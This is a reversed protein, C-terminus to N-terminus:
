DKIKKIGLWVLAVLAAGLIIVRLYDDMDSWYRMSGIILSLVGGLTLGLSVAPTAMTFFGAVLAIVGLITLAVFVNRNYLERAEEFEQACIFQTNCWGVPTGGTPPVPKTEGVFRSPDETWQGGQAVCEEQNQPTKVVQEQKCFEDWEPAEYVLFISYNFFLNLVIVIGAILAWKLVSQTSM